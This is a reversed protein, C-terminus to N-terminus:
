QEMFLRCTKVCNIRMYWIDRECHGKKSLETCNQWDDMVKFAKRGKDGLLRNEGGWHRAKSAMYWEQYMPVPFISTDDSMIEELNEENVDAIYITASVRIGTKTGNLYDCAATGHFADDGVVMAEDAIYKAVGERDSVDDRLIFEPPADDVQVIPFLVNFFKGGTETMDRHVYGKECHSVGIFSVGQIMLGDLGFYKGIAELTQDFNGRALVKLYEEHTHENAVNAWHMNSEWKKAPREVCYQLDPDAQDFQFFKFTDPVLPEKRQLLDWYMDIIGLHEAYALLEHSLKPDLGIRVSYKNVPESTDSWRIPEIQGPDLHPLSVFDPQEKWPCEDTTADSSTEEEKTEVPPSATKWSESFLEDPLTMVHRFANPLFEDGSYWADVFRIHKRSLHKIREIKEEDLTEITEAEDDDREDDDYIIGPGNIVINVEYEYYHVKIKELKTRSIVDCEFWAKTTPHRCETHINDPYPGGDNEERLTRIPSLADLNLEVARVYRPHKAALEPHPKWTEVHHKWAAEWDSGYDLLIEDGEPIEKLAIYDVALCSTYHYALEIPTKTLCQPDFWSTNTAWVVKVNAETAHHHNIYPTSSGYPCLLLPSEETKRGFCYNLVLQTGRPRIVDREEYAKGTTEDVVQQAAYINLISRETIHLMPAHAVIEGASFSRRAFAGRGAQPLTSIGPVIGDMCRGHTQLWEKSRTSKELEYPVLGGAKMAEQADAWSTPLARIATVDLDMAEELLVTLAEVLDKGGTSSHHTQVFNKLSAGFSDVDESLVLKWLEEAMAGTLRNEEEQQEQQQHHTNSYTTYKQFFASAEAWDEEKPVIGITDEREEFWVHGYSGFIEAYPPIPKIAPTHYGHYASFAGVGPDTSRHMTAPGNDVQLQGPERVNNLAFHSCPLSGTGPIMMHTDPPFHDDLDFDGMSIFFNMLYNRWNKRAHEQAASRFNGNHFEVDVLPVAGQDYDLYQQFTIDSKKGSKPVQRDGNFAGLGANPITSPAVWIGCYDADDM